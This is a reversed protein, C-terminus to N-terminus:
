PPESEKERGTVYATVGGTAMIFALGPPISPIWWRAAFAVEAAFFIGLLGGAILLSFRWVSRTNYGIVSGLLSWLLLWLGKHWEAPVRIPAVDDLAFRLLQATMQGQLAVGAVQQDEAVGRSLPTFFYDKVSQARVGVLIIRDAIAEVPVTGSLLNSFSYTRFPTGAEAFDLLYQYGRADAKRYGGDDEELPEITTQNLRVYQPNVPDPQLAMREAALYLSALQLSFATFVEQGDDLFLLGRRVIGGPDVVVDGFAAQDTNRIAALPAIGQDGITMVGVVQPNDTFIRNLEGTGPPVPIDRYIDLGIARPKGNLLVTLAQVITEDTLPWRGLAQIDNESLEIITIRSNESTEKPALRILWDYAALEAFELYGGLRMGGVLLFVLLGGIMIVSIPKRGLTHLVRM